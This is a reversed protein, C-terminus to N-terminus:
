VSAECALWLVDGTICVASTLFGFTLLLLLPLLDDELPWSVGIVPVGSLKFPLDLFYTEADFCFVVFTAADPDAM